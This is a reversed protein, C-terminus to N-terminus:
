RSFFMLCQGRAHFVRKIACVFGVHRSKYSSIADYIAAKSLPIAPVLGAM